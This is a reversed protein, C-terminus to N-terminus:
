KRKDKFVRSERFLVNRINNERDMRYCKYEINPGFRDRRKYEDLDKRFQAYDECTSHCGIQRKDCHRCCECSLGM